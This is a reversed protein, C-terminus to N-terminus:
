NNDNDPAPTTDPRLTRISANGKEWVLLLVDRDAPQRHVQAIFQSASTVPVRNIETIIDGPQLVEDAPSGPRVSQVVVGHVQDPVNLQQRIDDSLDTVGIGLKVGQAPSASGGDSDASDSNKHYQGVTAKVSLPKGDRVVSLTIATGPTMESVRLQLASGTEVPQGNIATIVDYTKLGARSAPSDPTVQSVLAGSAKDLNLSQANDPTVDGISIGLYGHEVKGTKILQDAVAHVTQSPIAFGAGAFSGNDTIIFTNIGVLQGHANVLPGGSNGPNIAADTQIYGGPKRLDDSYPNQRNVASVIGRTVSFQFYGFPSGFALVTQGPELKGSDGWSITPLDKADVKVVALDTLKDTGVLKGTLVRRDHLTVKIQTAGQVVHNNTVIYGDPSIIVGSGIGHEIQPQQPQMQGGGFGFFQAFGPPIGQMQGQQQQEDPSVRATVAINVVAPTVRHAVSEMANDLATLAAVSNDDLPTPNDIGAAHVGGHGAFFAAGLVFSGILTAPVALKKSKAVLQNTTAQM